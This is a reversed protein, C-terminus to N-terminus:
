KRVYIMGKALESKFSKFEKLIATDPPNNEFNGPSTYVYYKLGNTFFLDSHFNKEQLYGFRSDIAAEKLPFSFGLTDNKFVGSNIYNMLDQNVKIHQRYSIDVDSFKKGNNRHLWNSTLSVGLILIVLSIHWKEFYTIAQAFLIAAFPMLVIFYRELTHAISSFAMFGLIFVIMISSLRNYRFKIFKSKLILFLLLIISYVYRGQDIFVIEIPYDWTKQLMSKLTLKTAGLNAPNLYWGYTNKQIILFVLFVLFPFSYILLLNKLKRRDKAIYFDVIVQVMLAIALVVGTEKTLVALSAMLAALIHQNNTYFLIAYVVLLTLLLELLIMTSQAFVIPQALLIVVAILASLYNNSNKRALVFVGIALLLSCFLVTGRMLPISYGFVKAVSALFAHLFLPHGFSMEPPVASPLLSIGNDLMYIVGNMYAAIEDWFYPLQLDSIKSIAFILCALPLLIFKISKPSLLFM